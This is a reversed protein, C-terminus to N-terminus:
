CVRRAVVIDLDLYDGYGTSNYLPGSRHDASVSRLM